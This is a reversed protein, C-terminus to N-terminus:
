GTPTSKPVTQDKKRFLEEPFLGINIGIRFGSWDTHRPKEWNNKTNIAGGFDFMYGLNAGIRFFPFSYSIMVAPEGYFSDSYYSASYSISTDLVQLYEDTKITSYNYGLTLRAEARWKGLTVIRFSNILGFSHCQLLEDFLYKGSYDGSSIRGGTSNFDYSIGLSWIGLSRLAYGGFSIWSPFDAVVKSEFPINGASNVLDSKLEKMSFSSYGTTFGIEYKQAHLVASSFLLLAMSLTKRM